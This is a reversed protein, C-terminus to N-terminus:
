QHNQEKRAKLKILAWDSRSELVELLRSCLHVHSVYDLLVSIISGTNQWLSLCSVAECFQLCCQPPTDRSLQMEEVLRRSQTIALHPKQSYMCDFCPRADCGNDLLLKLMLPSEMSLLIASPFSSPQMSIQTNANAGYRLLLTAMDMWGFRVAILLPNFVDLNPNAGAELLMETAELNGNYVSFYLATSRRDKYMKSYEESLEANVDFGSEILLELIDDRNREAAIHVPSIGSQRVRVRSTVPILMSVIRIHNNKVAVHLPLLGSKMSCNTDAKLSLLAEVTSVHGNKCAEYLPTAGDGAQGNVDADKNALLHILNAHGHQAATFFPQIGYINKSHLNAGAELLMRCLKLRGHRCAENLASGGQSCSLNVQAGSHLLLDVTAENPRECATFLPTERDENAINPDAGHKLLFNVCFTNGRSAALLLATQNKLSCRNVSDPHARILIRVCQLQGYYAAEHLAIWGEDNPEMLSSCRRNVLDMLAEADGNMILRQLPSSKRKFSRYLFRSLATPPNACNPVDTPDSPPPQSSPVYSLHRPPDPNRWRHDPKRQTPTVPDPPASSPLSSTGQDSYPPLHRDAISGGVTIQLLEENSLQSHDDVSAAM